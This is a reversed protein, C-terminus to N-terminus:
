QLTCAIGDLFGAVSQRWSQDPVFGRVVVIGENLAAEVFISKALDEPLAKRLEIMQASTLVVFDLARSEATRDNFSYINQGERDYVSVSWFPSNGPSQVHVIGESLDFRCAAAYFLPDISKVIPTEGAAADIRVIRYLDASMALRSWADRDSFQPLMMLIVIHVIAAGFLGIVVAYLVRLM